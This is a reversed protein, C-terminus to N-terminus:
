PMVTSSTYKEPAIIVARKIYEGFLFDVRIVDLHLVFATDAIVLGSAEDEGAICSVLHVLYGADEAVVLHDDKFPIRQYVSCEEDRGFLVCCCANLDLRLASQAVQGSDAHAAELSPCGPQLTTAGCAGLDPVAGLEDQAGHVAVVDERGDWAACLSEFAIRTAVQHDM